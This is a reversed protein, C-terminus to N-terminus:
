RGPSRTTPRGYRTSGMSASCWRRTGRRRVAAWSTASKTRSRPTAQFNLPGRVTRGSGSPTVSPDSRPTRFATRGPWRALRGNPPTPHPQMSRGGSSMRWGTTGSPETWPRGSRPVDSLRNPRDEPFRHRWKPDAARSRRADDAARAANPRAGTDPEERRRLPGAGPGADVPPPGRHRSGQGRGRSRRLAQLPGRVIRSCGSLTGSAGSRPIRFAAKGLWPASRGIPRTPRPMADPTREIVRAVRDDGITRPRGSRPVDSLGDLRDEPFRRRWKDVTHEHVDLEAAVTKKTLSDTCCLVIRCHDAMGRAVRRRRARRGLFLREETGLVVAAVLRGVRCGM